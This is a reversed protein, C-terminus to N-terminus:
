LYLWGGNGRYTGRARTKWDHNQDRIKLPLSFRNLPAHRPGRQPSRQHAVPWRPVDTFRRCVPLGRRGDRAAFRQYIPYIIKCHGHVGETRGIENPAKVGIRRAAPRRVERTAPKM